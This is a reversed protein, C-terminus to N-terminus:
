PPRLASPQALINGIAKEVQMVGELMVDELM